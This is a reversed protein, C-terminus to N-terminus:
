NAVPHNALVLLLNPYYASSTSCREPLTADCIRSCDVTVTFFKYCYYLVHCNVCPVVTHGLQVTSHIYLLM